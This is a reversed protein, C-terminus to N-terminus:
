PQKIFMIGKLEGDKRAAVFFVGSNITYNYATGTIGQFGLGQGVGLTVSVGANFDFRIGKEISNYGREERLGYIMRPQNAATLTFYAATNNKVDNVYQPAVYNVLNDMSTSFDKRLKDNAFDVGLRVFDKYSFFKELQEPVIYNVTNYISRVLNSKGLFQAVKFTYTGLTANYIGNFNPYQIRNFNNYVQNPVPSNHSFDLMDWGIVLENADDDGWYTSCPRCLWLCLWSYCTKKKREFWAKMGSSAFFWYNYNYVQFTLRRDNKFYVTENESWGEFKKYYKPFMSLEQSTIIRSANADNSALGIKNKMFTNQRLIIGNAEQYLMENMKKEGNFRNEIGDFTIDNRLVSDWFLQWEHQHTNLFLFTGFETIRYITDAVEIELNTNLFAGLLSDPILRSKIDLDYETSDAALLELNDNIDRKGLHLNSGTHKINDKNQAFSTFGIPIVNNIDTNGLAVDDFIQKFVQRNAFVLRNQKYSVTETNPTAKKRLLFFNEKTCSVLVFVSWIM